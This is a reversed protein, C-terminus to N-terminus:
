KIKLLIDVVKNVDTLSNRNIKLNITFQKNSSVGSEFVVPTAVELSLLIRLRQAAATPLTVVLKRYVAVDLCEVDALFQM